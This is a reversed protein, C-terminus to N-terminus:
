GDRIGPRPDRIWFCCWFSPHFFIQKWIKNQLCFNWLISFLKIKSNSIPWNQLIISNKVWFTKVLREFIHTQSGPDPIFRNRIGSGPGPTLFADSWPDPDADRCFLLVAPFPHVKPKSSSTPYRYAPAPHKMQLKCNYKIGVEADPDPKTPANIRRWNHLLLLM